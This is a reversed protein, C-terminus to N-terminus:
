GKVKLRKFSHSSVVVVSEPTFDEVDYDGHEGCDGGGKAHRAAHLFSGRQGKPMGGEIPPVIWGRGRRPSGGTEPPSDTVVAFVAGARGGMSPPIGAPCLPPQLPVSLQGCIIVSKTIFAGKTCM